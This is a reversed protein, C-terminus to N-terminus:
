LRRHAEGRIILDKIRGTILCFGEPSIVAEDGTYMWIAGDEKKMAEDTKAKNKYYGKQLSYGAVCLEGKVGRPVINGNGDIVKASTHPLIKGVTTLKRELDDEVHTMFSAPSTETM